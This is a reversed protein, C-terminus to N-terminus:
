GYLRLEKSLPINARGRELCNSGCTTVKIKDSTMMCTCIYMTMYMICVHVYMTCTCLVGALSPLSFPSSFVGLWLFCVCVGLQNFNVHINVHTAITSALSTHM